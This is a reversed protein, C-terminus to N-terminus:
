RSRMPTRSIRSAMSRRLTRVQGAQYRGPHREVLVEFLTKAQLAADRELEAEIWDWDEAFPDPRTRWSRPGKLNSPLCGRREYNRLTRVSMGTRAAALEQTV